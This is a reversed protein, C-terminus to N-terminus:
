ALRDVRLRGEDGARGHFARDLEAVRQERPGILEDLRHGLLEHHVREPALERVVVHRLHARDHAVRRLAVVRTGRERVPVHSPVCEPPRRPPRRGCSPRYRERLWPLGQAKPTRKGKPHEYFAFTTGQTGRIYAGCEGCSAPITWTHEGPVADYRANRRSCR